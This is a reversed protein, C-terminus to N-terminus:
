ELLQSEAATIDCFDASAVRFLISGQDPVLNEAAALLLGPLEGFGGAFHNLLVLPSEVELRTSRRTSFFNVLNSNNLLQTGGEIIQDFRLRHINITRCIRNGSTGVM